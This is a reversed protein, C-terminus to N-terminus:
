LIRVQEQSETHHRLTVTRAWPVATVAPHAGTDPCEANTISLLRIYVGVCETLFAPWSTLGECLGDLVRPLLGFRTIQPAADAIAPEVVGLVKLRDPVESLEPPALM